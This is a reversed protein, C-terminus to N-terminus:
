STRQYPNLGDVDWVDWLGESHRVNVQPPSPLGHGFMKGTEHDRNEERREGEHAKETRFPRRQHREERKERRGTPPKETRFAVVPKERREGEGQQKGDSLSLGIPLAGSFRFVVGKPSTKLGELRAHPVVIQSDTSVM